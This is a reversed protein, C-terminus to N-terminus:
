TKSFEERCKAVVYNVSVVRDLENFKLVQPSWEDPIVCRIVSYDGGSKEFSFRVKKKLTSSM